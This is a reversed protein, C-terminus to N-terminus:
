GRYSCQTLVVSVSVPHAPVSALIEVSTWNLNSSRRDVSRRDQVSGTEFLRGNRHGCRFILVGGWQKLMNSVTQYKNSHNHKIGGRGAQGLRVGGGESLLCVIM